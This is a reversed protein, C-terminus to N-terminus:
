HYKKRLRAFVEEAPIGTIKGNLIEQVRKEVEIDWASEVEQPSDEDLSTILVHALKAREQVPLALIDRELKELLEDMDNSYVGFDITTM